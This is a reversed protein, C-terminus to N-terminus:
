LRTFNDLIKMGFKHSKEPHFQVGYINGKCIGSDFEIGYTTKMLADKEDEVRIYYSHVFYYRPETPLNDTLPNQQKVIVRNWGMHPVKLGLPNPYPFRVTKAPIWGLGALRGEESSLTMLQAGLCIGLVPMKQVLALENLIERLGREEISRMGADFAGVGPLIIRDAGAIENPVSSVVSAANLRRLMNCISVLNGMGYDIIAIM